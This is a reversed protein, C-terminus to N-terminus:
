ALASTVRRRRRLQYILVGAALGTLGMVISPPEPIVAPLISFTAAASIPGRHVPDQTFTFTLTSGFPGGTVGGFTGPTWNGLVSINLFGPLSTVVTIATSAFTGFVSNGFILSTPNTLNFSFAPFLQTPMGTFVGTHSTTSVFLGISFTTATNLNGTPSGDAAPANIDVFGQSGITTAQVGSALAVCIAVASLGSLIVPRM